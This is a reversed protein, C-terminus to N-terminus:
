SLLKNFAKIIFFIILKKQNIYARMHLLPDLDMKEPVDNVNSDAFYLTVCTRIEVGVPM